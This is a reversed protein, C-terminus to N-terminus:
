STLRALFRYIEVMAFTDLECYGLLASAIQDGEDPEAGIMKRWADMASAGDQVDLEKYSLEPSNIEM